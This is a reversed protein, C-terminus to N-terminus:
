WQVYRSFAELLTSSKHSFQSKHFQHGVHTTLVTNLTHTHLYSSLSLSLSLSRAYIIIVPRLKMHDEVNMAQTHLKAHSYLAETM